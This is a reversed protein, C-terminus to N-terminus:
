CANSSGIAGIKQDTCTKNGIAASVNENAVIGIEVENDIKGSDIAGIEQTASSENGIAATVNEAAEINMEVAGGDITLDQAYATGISFAAVVALVSFKNM